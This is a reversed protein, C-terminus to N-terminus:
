HTEITITVTGITDNAAPTPVDYNGVDYQHHLDLRVAYDRNNCGAGCVNSGAELPLVVDEGDLETAVERVEWDYYITNTDFVTVSEGTCSSSEYLATGEPLGAEVEVEVCFQQDKLYSFTAATGEYKEESSWQLSPTVYGGTSLDSIEIRAEGQEAWYYGNNGVTELYTIAEEKDEMEESCAADFYIPNNYVFAYDDDGPFDFAEALTCESHRAWNYTLTDDDYRWDFVFNYWSIRVDYVASEVNGVTAEAGADGSGTFSENGEGEANVFSMGMGFVLAIVLLYSLLKKM